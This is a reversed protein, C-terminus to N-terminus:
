YQRGAGMEVAFYARVTAPGWEASLLLLRGEAMAGPARTIASRRVWDGPVFPIPRVPPAPEVAFSERHPWKDDLEGGAGQGRRRHTAVDIVRPV